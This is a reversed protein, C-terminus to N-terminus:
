HRTTTSNLEVNDTIEAAIARNDWRGRRIGKATCGRVVWVKVGRRALQRLQKVAPASPRKRALYIVWCEYRLGLAAEIGEITYSSLLVLQVYSANGDHAMSRYVKLFADEADPTQRFNLAVQRMFSAAQAYEIDYRVLQRHITASLWLETDRTTM